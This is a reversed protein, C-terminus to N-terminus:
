VRRVRGDFPGGNLIEGEVKTNLVFYYYSPDLAYVTYTLSIRLTIYMM